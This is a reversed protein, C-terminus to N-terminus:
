DCALTVYQMNVFLGLLSIQLASTTYAYLRYNTEVVIFGTQQQQQM